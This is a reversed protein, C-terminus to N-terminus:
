LCQLHVQILEDVRHIELPYKIRMLIDVALPHIIRLIIKGGQLVNHVYLLFISNQGGEYVYGSLLLQGLLLILFLQFGNIQGLLDYM